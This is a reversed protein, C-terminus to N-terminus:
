LVCALYLLEIIEHMALGVTSLESCCQMALLRGVLRHDPM